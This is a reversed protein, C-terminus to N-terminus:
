AIRRRLARGPGQLDQLGLRLRGRGHGGPIGGPQNALLYDLALNVADGNKVGKARLRSSADRRRGVTGADVTRRTAVPPVAATAPWHAAEAHM